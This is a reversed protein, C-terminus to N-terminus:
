RLAFNIPVTFNVDVAEGRQYGPKWRPLSNLVRLAEQDLSPDVGRVIRADTVSGDKSVIFTVYVRGQIGNKQAIDPYDVAHAIYERLASEGGPFEPMEEVIFFVEGDSVPKVTAAKERLM